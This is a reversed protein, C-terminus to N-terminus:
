TLGRLADARAGGDMVRAAGALGPVTYGSHLERVEERTAWRWGLERLKETLDRFGMEVAPTGPVVSVAVGEVDPHMVLGILEDDAEGDKGVITQVRMTSLGDLAGYSGVAELINVPEGPDDHLRVWEGAESV